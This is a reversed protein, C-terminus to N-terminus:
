YCIDNTCMPIAEYLYNWYAGVVVYVYMDIWYILTKVM